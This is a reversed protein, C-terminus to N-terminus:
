KGTAERNMVGGVLTMRVLESLSAAALRESSTRMARTLPTIFRCTVPSHRGDFASAGNVQRLASEM